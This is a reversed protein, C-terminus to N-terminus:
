GRASVLNVISAGILAAISALAVPRSQHVFSSVFLVVAAAGGLILAAPKGHRKWGSYLGWLAVLLSLILLPLLVADHVLFGLGIASVVSLVGPIGLCCLAAFTAGFIGVKDIHDKATMLSPKSFPNEDGYPSAIRRGIMSPM